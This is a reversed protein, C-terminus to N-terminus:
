SEAGGRARSEEDTKKAKNAEIRVDLMQDYDIIIDDALDFACRIEEAAQEVYEIYPDLEAAISEPIDTRHAAFDIEDADNKDAGYKFMALALEKLATRFRQRQDDSISRETPRNYHCTGNSSGNGNTEV